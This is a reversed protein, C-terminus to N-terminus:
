ILQTRIQSNIRARNHVSKPTVLLRAASGRKERVGGDAHIACYLPNVRYGFGYSERLNHVCKPTFFVM